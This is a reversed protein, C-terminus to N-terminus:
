TAESTRPSELDDCARLGLAAVVASRRVNRGIRSAVLQNGYYIAVSRNSSTLLDLMLEEHGRPASRPPYVGPPYPTPLSRIGPLWGSRAPNGFRGHRRAVLWMRAAPQCGPASMSVKASAASTRMM